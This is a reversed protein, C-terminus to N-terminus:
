RNKSGKILTILRDDYGLKKYFAHAEKNPAFCNVKVVSCDQSWFYEEIKAMLMAGIGKGRQKPHIFLEEVIGDISPYGELNESEDEPHEIIGVICGAFAGSKEAVLILGNKQHVKKLTRELYTHADFDKGTRIRHFPDISGVFDQLQMICERLADRDEDVYERIFVEM